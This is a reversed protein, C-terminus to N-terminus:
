AIATPTDVTSAFDRFATHAATRRRDLSTWASYMKAFRVTLQRGVRTDLCCNLRSRDFPNKKILGGRRSPVSSICEGRARNEKGSNWNLILNDHYNIKAKEAFNKDLFVGDRVSRRALEDRFVGHRYACVSVRVCVRTYEPVSMGRRHMGAPTISMLLYAM